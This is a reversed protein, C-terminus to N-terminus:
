QLGLVLDVVWCGRYHAQRGRCHALLEAHTCGAEELADALIPLDGFRDEDYIVQALKSVAGDAQLLPRPLLGLGDDLAPPGEGGLPEPRRHELLTGPRALQTKAMELGSVGNRDEILGKPDVIRRGSLGHVNSVNAAIDGLALSCFLFQAGALLAEEIGM